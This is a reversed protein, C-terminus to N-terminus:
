DQRWGFELGPARHRQRPNNGANTLSEWLHRDDGKGAAYTELDLIEGRFDIGVNETQICRDIETLRHFSAIGLRYELAIEIRQGQQSASLGQFAGDAANHSRCSAPCMHKIKAMANQRFRRDGM